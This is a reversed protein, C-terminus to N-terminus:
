VEPIACQPMEPSVFVPDTAVELESFAAMADEPVALNEPGIPEPIPLIWSFDPASGTYEFQVYASITGNRNQTFIIREANQDIPSNQRPLKPLLVRWM